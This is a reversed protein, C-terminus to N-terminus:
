GAPDICATSPCDAAAVFGLLAAVAADLHPATDPTVAHDRRLAAGVRTACRALSEDDLIAGDEATAGARVWHWLLGCAVDAEAARLLRNRWAVHGQGAMRSAIFVLSSGM